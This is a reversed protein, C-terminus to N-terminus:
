TAAKKARARRDRLREIMAGSLFAPNRWLQYDPQYWFKRKRMEARVIQAHDPRLKALTVKDILYANRVSARWGHREAKTIKSM